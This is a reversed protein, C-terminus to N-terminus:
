LARDIPTAEYVSVETFQSRVVPEHSPVVAGLAAVHAQLDGMTEWRELLRVRDPHTADAAFSYDICGTEDLTHAVQDHRSELYRGRDSEAVEITGVVIIM